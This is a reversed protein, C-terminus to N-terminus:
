ASALGSAFWCAFLGLCRILLFRMAICCSMFFELSGHLGPQGSIGAVPHISTGHQSALICADVLHFGFFHCHRTVYSTCTGWRVFPLSSCCAGPWVWGNLERLAASSLYVHATPLVGSPSVVLSTLGVAARGASWWPFSSEAATGSVGPSRPFLTYRRLRVVRCAPCPCFCPLCAPPCSFPLLPLPPLPFLPRLLTSYSNLPTSTPNYQTSIPNRNTRAREPM